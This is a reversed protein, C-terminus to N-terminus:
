QGTFRPARRELFHAVGEKFDASRAALAMEHNADMIAESLTQFPVTYHQRKMVAMSRPSVHDILQRAYDRTEEMLRGAPFVRNVLGIRLAESADVKRASIILDFAQSPGILYPLMWSMGHESILGRRSFSTTMVAGEAAFRLDCYLAHILGIGAAPGNIAAIVPKSISPFSSYRSQWDSRANMDYPRMHSDSKIDAPDLGQLENMDAGACFGRGAGTLIIVQVERDKGAATIADLVEGEMVKTWANLRDPRNMTITAIKESVEYLIERYQM